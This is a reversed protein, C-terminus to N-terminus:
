NEHQPLILFNPVITNLFSVNLHNGSLHQSVYQNKNKYLNSELVSFGNDFPVKQLQHINAHHHKLIISNNLHPPLVFIAIQHETANDNKHLMAHSHVIHYTWSKQPFM